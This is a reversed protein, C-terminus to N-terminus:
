TQFLNPETEHDPPLPPFEPECGHEDTLIHGTKLCYHPPSVLGIMDCLPCQGKTTLPSDCCWCETM